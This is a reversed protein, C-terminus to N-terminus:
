KSVSVLTGVLIESVFLNIEEGFYIERCQLHFCDRVEFRVVDGQQLVYSSDVVGNSDPYFGHNNSPTQHKANRVRYKDPVVYEENTRKKFDEWMKRIPRGVYETAIFSKVVSEQRIYDGMNHLTWGKRCEPCEVWPLPPLESCVSFVTPPLRKGSEIVKQRNKYVEDYGAINHQLNYEAFLLWFLESEIVLPVVEKPLHYGQLTSCDGQEDLSFAGNFIYFGILQEKREHAEKRAALLQHFDELSSLQAEIGEKTNYMKDKNM